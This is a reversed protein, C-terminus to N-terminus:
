AAISLRDRGAAKAAYLAEDAAMMIQHRSFAPNIRAIGASATIRVRAGGPARTIGNSVAHRVRDCIREAQDLDAGTIIIGFEEGGLRAVHDGPRVMRQAIDAFAQLVLDGVAHGHQDNVRKFFDLDFVAVCGGQRDERPEAIQLDLLADFARRNALGTLPDTAAAHALQMELSKRRSIDRVASVSGVLAGADDFIGRTNAEFWLTAGCADQGRYEVTTTSGPTERVRRHAAIFTQADPGSLLEHPKHGILMAPTFGTIEQVSPSVYRVVGAPDLEIVIDTASETILKYRAESERLRRFIDRREKLEAAVPLVTMVTVALYIQLVISHGARSTPVLHVPGSGMATLVGALGVLILLALTVGARDLRFAIITLPLLPLFLLPYVSQAFVLFTTGAMAALLAAAEAKGRLSLDRLWGVIEGRLLLTIVPAFVIMGLAHGAFWDRYLAPWGIMTTWVATTAGVMAGLLPAVLGCSLAFLGVGDLSDLYDEGRGLARLMAAGVLAEGINGIVLPGAALVGLGFLATAAFSAISCALAPAWWARTEIRLLYMTLLAAAIWIHAVGGDFRTLQITLSALAFYAVGITTMQGLVTRYNALRM